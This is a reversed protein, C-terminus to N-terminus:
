LSSPFHLWAGSRDCHVSPLAPRLASRNKMSALASPDIGFETETVSERVSLKKSLTRKTHFQGQLQTRQM